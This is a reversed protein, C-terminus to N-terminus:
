CRVQENDRQTFELVTSVRIIFARSDARQTTEVYVIDSNRISVNVSFMPSPQDSAPVPPAPAAAQQDLQAEISALAVHANYSLTPILSM